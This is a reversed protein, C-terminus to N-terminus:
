NNKPKYILTLNLIFSKKLCYPIYTDSLFSWFNELEERGIINLLNVSNVLRGTFALFWFISDVKMFSIGTKEFTKEATVLRRCAQTIM